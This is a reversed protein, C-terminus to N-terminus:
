SPLIEAVERLFAEPYLCSNSKRQLSARWLLSSFHSSRCQDLFLLMYAKLSPSANGQLIVMWRLIGNSTQSLLLFYFHRPHDDTPKNTQKQENTTMIGCVRSRVSISFLLHQWSATRAETSNQVLLTLDQRLLRNHANGHKYSYFYGVDTASAEQDTSEWQSNRSRWQLGTHFWMDFMNLIWSKLDPLSWSLQSCYFLRVSM